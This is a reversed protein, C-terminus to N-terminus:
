ITNNDAHKALWQLLEDIDQYSILTAKKLQHEVIIACDYIVIAMDAFNLENKALDPLIEIRRGLDYSWIGVAGGLFPLTEDSVPHFNFADLAKQILTFPDKKSRKVRGTKEK